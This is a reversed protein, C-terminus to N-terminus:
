AMQLTKLHVYKSHVTSFFVVFVLSGPFLGNQLFVNLPIFGVVGRERKERKLGCVSGTDYLIVSSDKPWLM